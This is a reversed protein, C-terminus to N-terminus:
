GALQGLAVRTEVGLILAGGTVLGVVRDGGVLAEATMIVRIELGLDIAAFAEVDRDLDLATRALQAVLLVAAAVEVEHAPGRDVARLREIVLERGECELALVGGGLALGAVGRAVLRLPQPGIEVRVLRAAAAVRLVGLVARDALNVLLAAVAVGRARPLWRLGLELEIVIVLRLGRHRDLARVDIDRARLAVGLACELQRLEVAAALEAVLARVLALQERLLLALDAMGRRQAGQAVDAEVVLLLGVVRELALM